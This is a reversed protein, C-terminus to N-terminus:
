QQQLWGTQPSSWPLGLLSLYDSCEANNECQEHHAVHVPKSTLASLPPCRGWHVHPGLTLLSSRVEGQNADAMLLSTSFDTGLARECSHLNQFCKEEWLIM